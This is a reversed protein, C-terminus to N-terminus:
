PCTREMQAVLSAWITRRLSQSYWNVTGGVTYSPERKEAGEGTNDNTSKKIIVMRVLILYYRMTTKFQVDRIILTTKFQVEM